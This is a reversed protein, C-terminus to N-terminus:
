TDGRSVLQVVVGPHDSMRRGSLTNPWGSVGVCELEDCHALHDVVQVGAGPVVGETPIRWDAFTDAFQGYVRHPTRSRPIRQNFDGLVIRPRSAESFSSAKPLHELYSVHDEWVKRDKRGTSVHAARWPICVGTVVIEGLPTDTVGAVFRGSPMDPYGVLDVETWPRRSWLLVKRRGAYMRYGYDAGSEIVHGNGPLIERFGETVCVLDPAQGEIVASVQDGRSTGPRAWEVNWNVVRLSAMAAASAPIGLTRSNQQRVRM